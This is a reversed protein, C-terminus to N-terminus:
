EFVVNIVRFSDKVPYFVLLSAAEGSSYVRQRSVVDWGGEETKRAVAVPVSQPPGAPFAIREPVGPRLMKKSDGVSVAIDQGSFNMILAEGEPINRRSAVVPMVKYHIERSEEDPFLFLVYEAANQPFNVRGLESYAPGKEDPLLVRERALILPNKGHYTYKGSLRKAMVRLPQFVGRGDVYGLEPPEYEQSLVEKGDRTVRENDGSSQLPNQWLFVRFKVSLPPSETEAQVEPQAGWLTLALVAVLSPFWSRPILLSM